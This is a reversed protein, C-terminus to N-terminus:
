EMLYSIPECTGPIMKGKSARSRSKYPLLRRTRGLAELLDYPLEYTKEWACSFKGLWFVGTVIPTSPYCMVGSCTSLSSARSSQKTSTAVSDYRKSQYCPTNRFIM